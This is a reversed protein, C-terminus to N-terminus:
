SWPPPSSVIGTKTMLSAVAVGQPKIHRGAVLRHLSVPGIVNNRRRIDM